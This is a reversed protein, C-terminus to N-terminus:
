QISCCKREKGEDDKMQEEGDKYLKLNPVNKLCYDAVARFLEEVGAGTMASTRFFRSKDVEFEIAFKDEREQLLPENTETLLDVMTGVIFVTCNPEHEDLQAKWFRM